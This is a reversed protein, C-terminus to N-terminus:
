PGERVRLFSAFRPLGTKTLGRYTYTITSGIPPPRRRVEDSFGTGLTFRRGDPMQMALAGM